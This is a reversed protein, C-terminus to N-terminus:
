REAGAEVGDPALGADGPTEVPTAGLSDAVRTEAAKEEDTKEKPPDLVTGKVVDATSGDDYLSLGFQNGLNIACRKLADSEAQKIANDHADGRSGSSQRVNAQGVAVETYTCVTERWPTGDKDTVEPAYITLRVRASYAIEVMPVSPTASSDYEREFVPHYELVEIDFNGYGFVRILHAKVDWAELYSLEKGDGRRKAVRSSNLPRALVDLQRQDLM